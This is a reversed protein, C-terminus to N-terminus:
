LLSEYAREVEKAVARIDYYREVQRRGWRGLEAAWGPTLLLERLAHELKAPDFDKPSLHDGLNTRLAQPWVSADCAGLVGGEGMLIVPKATALSELASRGGAIVVDVSRLLSPLDQVFGLAELRSPRIDGGAAQLRATFEQAREPPVKGAIQFLTAPLGGAVRKLAEMFFAFAPWRGGTLRGLLLVRKQAYAPSPTPAYRSLDIGNRILRIKAPDAGLRASLHQAVMEDIAITRDGLCAFTKSFWHVPPPQHITTVHPIGTLAAAQAAVWHSRRSHSHVVQIENKKIFRAVRLTNLLGGPVAKRHVPMSTYNQGYHLRDSIWHVEHRGQWAQALAVCYTESGAPELCSLLFLIRM